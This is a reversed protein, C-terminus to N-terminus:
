LRASGCSGANWRGAAAGGLWKIRQMYAVAHFVSHQCRWCRCLTHNPGRGQKIGPSSPPLCPGRGHAVGRLFAAHAKRLHRRLHPADARTREIPGRGSPPLASIRVCGGGVRSWALVIRTSCIRRAALPSCNRWRCSGGERSVRSVGASSGAGRAASRFGWM